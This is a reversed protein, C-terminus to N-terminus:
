YWWFYLDVKFQILRWRFVLKIRCCTKLRQVLTRMCKGLQITLDMGRITDKFGDSIQASETVSSKIFRAVIYKIRSQCKNHKSYYVMNPISKALSSLNTNAISAVSIRVYLWGECLDCQFPEGRMSGMLMVHSMVIVICM